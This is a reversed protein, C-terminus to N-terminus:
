AFADLEANAALLQAANLRLAENREELERTRDAVRQELGEKSERLARNQDEIRGLMHNFAETLVGLEDEGLKPVRVSYDRRDSVARATDALLLIPQSITGQLVRSLLYAALLSVAMVAVAIAGSLRL